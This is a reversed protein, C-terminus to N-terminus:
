SAADEQLWGWIKGLRIDSITQNSVGFREAIERLM